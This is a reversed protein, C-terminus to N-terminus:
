GSKGGVSYLVRGEVVDRHGGGCVPIYSVVMAIMEPVLKDALRLHRPTSFIIVDPAAWGFVCMM